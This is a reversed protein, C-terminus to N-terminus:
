IKTQTTGNSWYMGYWSSLQDTRFRIGPYFWLPNVSNTFSRNSWVVGHRTVEFHLHPGMPSGNPGNTNSVTGIPTGKKIRKEEEINDQNDTDTYIKGLHMYIVIINKGTKPDICNTTIAVYNGASTSNTDDIQTIVGDAVAVIEAGNISATNGGTIDVGKHDPVTTYDRQGYYSSINIYNTSLPYEWGFDGYSNLYKGQSSLATFPVYGWFDTSGSTYKIYCYKNNSHMDAMAIVTSGQPIKVISPSSFKPAQSLFTEEKTTTQWGYKWKDLVYIYCTTTKGNLNATVTAKGVGKAKITCTRGQGSCQVINTNSSTWMINDTNSMNTQSIKLERSQGNFISLNNTSIMLVNGDFSGAIFSRLM